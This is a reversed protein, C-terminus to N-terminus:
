NDSRMARELVNAEAVVRKLSVDSVHTYLETTTLSAHGLLKQVYRIDVGSEILQTAASHRIMHPTITREIGAGRAARSIRTRLTAATMPNGSDNALLHSHSIERRDRNALHAVLLGLLWPDTIYVTRERLGKGVVRVSRDSLNIDFCRINITESVRLGTVLMVTVALLTTVDKGEAIPLDRTDISSIGSEECLYVVLARLDTAPVPRPLSRSRRIQISVATWPDCGLHGADALWATFGRTSAIRRRISAASLGARRQQRIFDEIHCGAIEAVAFDCGTVASFTAVDSSYARITHASLDRSSRLWEVYNLAAESLRM